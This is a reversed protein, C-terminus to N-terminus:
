EEEHTHASPNKEFKRKRELAREIEKSPVGAEKVLGHSVVTATRGHFFDSRKRMM